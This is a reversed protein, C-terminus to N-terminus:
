KEEQKFYIIAILGLDTVIYKLTKKQQIMHSKSFQPKPLGNVFNM